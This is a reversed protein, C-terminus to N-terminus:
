PRSFKSPRRNLEQKDPLVRKLAEDDSNVRTIAASVQFPGSRNVVDFNSASLKASVGLLQLNGADVLPVDAAASVMLDSGVGALKFELSKPAFNPLGAVLGGTLNLAAHKAEVRGSLTNHGSPHFVGDADLTFNDTDMLAREVTYKGQSNGSMAVDFAVNQGTIQRLDPPLIRGISGKGRATLSFSEELVSVRGDIAMIRQGDLHATTILGWDKLPGSGSLRLGFAPKGEMQLLNAVIGNEPESIALEATAARQDPNYNLSLEAEGPTGDTRVVRARARILRGSTSTM